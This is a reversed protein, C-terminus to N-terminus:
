ATPLTLLFATAGIFIFVGITFLGWRVNTKIVLGIGAFFLAATFIVGALEFNDGVDNAKRGEEFRDDADDFMKESEKFKSDYYADELDVYFADLLAQEPIQIDEAEEGEKQPEGAKKLVDEPLGLSKYADESFQYLYLYSALEFDRDRDTPNVADRGQAILMKAQVDVSLDHSMEILMDSNMTSAETTWKSAESYAESMKGGWLGSQFGSWAVGMAALGLLIATILEFVDFPKQEESM